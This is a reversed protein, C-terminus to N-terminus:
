DEIDRIENQASSFVFLCDKFMGDILSMRQRCMRIDDSFVLFKTYGKGHMWEVASALYETTVPPHKDQQVLYDGLRVHISVWGEKMEWKLGFAKIIFDRCVKFYKESQFYGRLKINDMKDIERYAHTSEKYMAVTYSVDECCKDVQIYKPWVQENLTKRPICYELNNKVAHCIAAAMQFLQNGLRGMLDCTIM